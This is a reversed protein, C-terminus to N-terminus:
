KDRQTMADLSQRAEELRPDLKLANEYADRARAVKGTQELLLGLQMYDEASAQTAISQNLHAIMEDAWEPDAQLAQKYSERAKSYDGLAGYLAGLSEYTRARMKDDSSLQIATQYQEIADQLRGCEALAVAFDVRRIPDSPRLNVAAQYHLLAEEPRDLVLLAHALNAEALFNTKTVELTHSWLDYNSRWYGIQRWTLVALVALIPLTVAVRFRLAVGRDDAWDAAQWVLMVFIGLMPIYTYRDAMAQDGVQMIGIVPVLTGLYWLWGTVLYPRSRREKWALASVSVLFLFALAIQWAGLTHVPHPYYLALRPWIAKWLYMAYAYIANELRVDFPFRDFSRVAGASQQAVITIVASGICLILLPLKELVLQPFSAQPTPFALNSDKADSQQKRNKRGTPRLAPPHSWTKIRQLPWYDLLLLVFPLTIVMPKSALGLVFFSAFALYRKVSPKRAYWGYAGITLLFFLTSLVNKREAAWAVSEVNLPHLAFLLAILLSRGTQGTARQLLLFLLVVNLVHLLVSTAHHGVPNAGYLQWDLAHSLWTLPHWNDQEISTLAWRITKWNVGSRVHQNQVIYSQDDFEVFSNREVRAYVALTILALLLCLLSTSGTHRRDM